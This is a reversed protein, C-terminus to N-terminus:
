SKLGDGTTALLLDHLSIPSFGPLVGLRLKFKLWDYVNWLSSFHFSYDLTASSPGHTSLQQSHM